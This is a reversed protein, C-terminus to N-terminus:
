QDNRAERIAILENIVRMFVNLSGFQKYADRIKYLEDLTLTENNM